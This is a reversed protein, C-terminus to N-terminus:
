PSAIPTKVPSASSVSANEHSARGTAPRSGARCSRAIVSTAVAMSEVPM